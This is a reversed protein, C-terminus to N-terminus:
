GQKIRSELITIMEQKQSEWIKQSRPEGNKMIKPTFEQAKLRALANIRRNKVNHKRM